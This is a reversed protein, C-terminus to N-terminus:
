CPRYGVAFKRRLFTVGDSDSISTFGISRDDPAHAFAFNQVAGMRTIEDDPLSRLILCSPNFLLRLRPHYTRRGLAALGEDTRSALTYKTLALKCDLYPTVGELLGACEPVIFGSYLPLSVCTHLDALDLLRPPKFERHERKHPLQQTAGYASGLKPFSAVVDIPAVGHKINHCMLFLLFHDRSGDAPLDSDAKAEASVHCETVFQALNLANTAFREIASYAKRETDTGPFVYASSPRYFTVLAERVYDREAAAVSQEIDDLDGALRLGRIFRDIYQFKQDSPLHSAKSGFWGKLDELTLAPSRPRTNDLNIRELKSSAALLSDEREMIMDRIRQWGIARGSEASLKKKYRALVDLYHRKLTPPFFPVSDFRSAKRAPDTRQPLPLVKGKAAKEFENEIDSM